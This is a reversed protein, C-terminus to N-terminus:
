KVPRQALCLLSVGVPLNMRAILPAELSFLKALFDNLRGPKTMSFDSVLEGNREPVIRRAIRVAAVVPFLFTNLYTLRRIELGTVDFLHVLEKARYRRKHHNIVDQRGWMWPFAPVTVLVYGGPRVVRAMEAVCSKDDDIHEILDFATVLDVSGSRLPLAQVDGRLVPLSTRQRSYRAAAAGWDLGIVRGYRSLFALNAGTGCGLDVLLAERQLPLRSLLAHFIARRGEFWWHVAEIQAYEEYFAQEM